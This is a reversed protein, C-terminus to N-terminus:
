QGDETIWGRLHAAVREPENAIIQDLAQRRPDSTAITPLDPGASPLELAPAAPRVAELERLWSPEDMLAGSERKRLARTIFFLFLLAAIGIGVAKLPSALGPPIPLAGKPTAAAPLKAFAIAQVQVTDGRGANFGVASQIARTLAAVNPKTSQDVLVSVSLRNVAGPAVQTRTVTKGVGWDTSGKKSRYNGGGGAAGAAGAAYSPLNTAAGSTGSAAGTGTLAESETTSKLPVGKADYQLQEKSAKDVNLDAAVQVQAKGAGLTQTLMANLSSAMQANYRAEAAPKAALGGGSPDGSAGEGAPWLMQGTADTITVSAPKLGPVSSAVLNAIGRVAGSQLTDASGGLLVAATAGRKDDSFLDDKPLTLNV